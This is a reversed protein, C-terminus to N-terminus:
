DRTLELRLRTWSQEHATVEIRTMGLTRGSGSVQARTSRLSTPSRLARSGLTCAVHPNRTRPPPPPPPLPPNLRCCPSPKRLSTRSNAPAKWTPSPRSRPPSTPPSPSSPSTQQPSAPCRGRSNNRSCRPPAPRHRCRRARHPLTPPPPPTAVPTWRLPTPLTSTQPPPLPKKPPPLAVVPVVAVSAWASRRWRRSMPRPVVM